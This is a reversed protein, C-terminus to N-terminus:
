EWTGSDKVLVNTAQQWTGSQKVFVKTATKWTGGDKVKITYSPGPPTYDITLTAGYFNIQYRSTTSSGEKMYPRVRIDRLEALTWTGVDLTYVTATSSVSTATGKATLGTFMQVKKQPTTTSNGNISLKATCSVSNITSGDPIASTDFKYYIYAEAGKTNCTIYARSTSSSSTYGNSINSTSYWSYNETDYSTPHLTLTAM